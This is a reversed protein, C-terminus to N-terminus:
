CPYTDKLESKLSEFDETHFANDFNQYWAHPSESSEIVMKMRPEIVDIAYDIGVLAIRSPRHKSSNVNSCYYDNLISLSLITLEGMLRENSMWDALSKLYFMLFKHPLDVTVNFDLIRLITSEMNVVSQRLKWYIEKETDITRKTVKEHVTKILTSLRIECECAKTATTFSPSCFHFYTSLKVHM